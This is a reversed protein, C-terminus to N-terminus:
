IGKEILEVCPVMDKELFKIRLKLASKGDKRHKSVFHRLLKVYASQPDSSLNQANKGQSEEFGLYVSLQVPAVGDDIKSAIKIFLENNLVDSDRLGPM